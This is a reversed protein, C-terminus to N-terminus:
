ISKEVGIMEIEILAIIFKLFLIEKYILSFNGNRPLSNVAVCVRSPFKGDEFYESYIDNVKKFDEMNKLYITSKVVNSFSSNCQNLREELIKM